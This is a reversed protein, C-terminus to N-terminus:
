TNDPNPLERNETLEVQAAESSGLKPTMNSIISAAENFITASKEGLSAANGVFKKMSEDMGSFYRVLEALPWPVLRVLPILRGYLPLKIEGRKGLKVARYITYAVEKPDLEPALLTSPTRVGNFMGTRLQGPCVLLTKVGTTNFAPPGLEYTLSEHLAILGSKSAGYASLRAPSLYGLTSAVTVIYGRKNKMMGPMFAKITYFSSLLNVQLTKEIEDFSLDLVTKGMTIGANNILLSVVGINETVYQAKQLVVERDSVDCAIYIVGEVYNKSDTTPIDLDFVVVRAGQSRFKSTLEKGLGSGGGTILVLDRTPDFLTGFVLGSTDIYLRNFHYLFNTFPGTM